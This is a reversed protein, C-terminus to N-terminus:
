HTEGQALIVAIAGCIHGIGANRELPPLLEGLKEAACVARREILGRRLGCIMGGIAERDLKECALVSLLLNLEDRKDYADLISKEAGGDEESQVGRMNLRYLRSRVTPLLNDARFATLIFMVSSPPEELSKLLANQCIPSLEDANKLIYVKRRSENPRILTDACLARIQEVKAGGCEFVIVDPHNGSRMKSCSTCYGCAGGGGGTCNAASALRIADDSDGGSILIAHPIRETNLSSNSM